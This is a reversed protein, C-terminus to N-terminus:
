FCVLLGDMGMTWGEVFGVLLYGFCFVFGVVFWFCFCGLFGVYSVIYVVFCVFAFCVFVVVGGYVGLGLGFM